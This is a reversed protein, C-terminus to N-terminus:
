NEFVMSWSVWLLLNAPKIDRHLINQSHIYEIALIIQALWESIQDESFATETSNTHTKRKMLQSEIMEDLSGGTAYEMLINQAGLHIFTAVYQIINPHNLEALINVENLVEAKEEQSMEKVTSTMQKLALKKGDSRRRVLHCSAFAGRGLFREQLLDEM